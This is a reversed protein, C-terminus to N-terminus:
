VYNAILDALVDPLKQFWLLNFYSITQEESMKRLVDYPIRQNFGALKFSPIVWGRSIWGDCGQFGIHKRLKILENKHIQEVNKLKRGRHVFSYKIIEATENIKKHDLPMM